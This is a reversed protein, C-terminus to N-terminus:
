EQKKEKSRSRIRYLNVIYFDDTDVIIKGFRHSTLELKQSCYNGTHSKLLNSVKKLTLMNEASLSESSQTWVYTTTELYFNSKKNGSNKLYNGLKRFIHNQM